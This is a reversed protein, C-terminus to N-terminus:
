GRHCLSPLYGRNQPRGDEDGGLPPSRSTRSEQGSYPPLRPPHPGASRGESVGYGMIESLGQHAGQRSSLGLPYIRGQERQVRDTHERQEELVARLAPTMIFTGGERNKTTGPELRVTGAKFDVQRWTLPLIESKLRWGTIYAFTVVPRAYDPLHRRVAEFQERDFFGTRVNDERLHPINPAQHLKGATLALSYMRKLAGIERNITGNTAEGEQRMAIYANVDAPTVQVARCEGFFPLLHKLSYEPRDLSPRGNARYKVWWVQSVKYRKGTKTIVEGEPHPYM